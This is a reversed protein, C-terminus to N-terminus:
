CQQRDRKEKSLSLIEISASAEQGWNEQVLFNGARGMFFVGKEKYFPPTEGYM